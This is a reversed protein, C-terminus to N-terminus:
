GLAAGRLDGGKVARIEGEVVMLRVEEVQTALEVKLKRSLPALGM